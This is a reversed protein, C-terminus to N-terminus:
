TRVDDADSLLGHPRINRVEELAATNRSARARTEEHGELHTGGPSTGPAFGVRARNLDVIEHKLNGRLDQDGYRNRQLMKDSSYYLQIYAMRRALEGLGLERLFAILTTRM